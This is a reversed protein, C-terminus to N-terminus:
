VRLRLRRGPTADVFRTLAGSRSAQPLSAPPLVTPTLGQPVLAKAAEGLEPADAPHEMLVRCTADPPSAFARLECQGHQPLSFSFVAEGGRPTDMARDYVIEGSLAAPLLWPRYDAQWPGNAGLTANLLRLASQVADWLPPADPHEALRQTWIKATVPASAAQAALAARLDHTHQEFAARAAWFAQLAHGAPTESTDAVGIEQLVIEPTLRMVRFLVVQGPSPAPSSEIRALLELGEFDVRALGSAEYEILRGRLHEGVRHRGRFLAAKDGHSGGGFGRSGYGTIRM